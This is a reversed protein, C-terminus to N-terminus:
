LENHFKVLEEVPDQIILKTQTNYISSVYNIEEKFFYAISGIFGIELNEWKEFQMINREFFLRFERDLLEQVYEEDRNKYLFHTFTALFRNPFPQKYVRNIISLYDLQYEDKLRNSLEIPIQKKIFDSILRKGLAGGSGNDGLIFGGSYVSQTINIGDYYCCNSGTGLIAAIGSKKHFLARAAGLIDSSVAVKTCDFVKRLLTSIKKNIDRDACGAGYFYCSDINYNIINPLLEKQLTQEINELSQFFPNTGSTSFLKVTEGKLSLNWTTKTSGSDAILRMIQYYKPNIKASCTVLLRNFLM